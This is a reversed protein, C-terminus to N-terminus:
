PYIPGADACGGSGWPAPNCAWIDYGGPQHFNCCERVEQKDPNNPDDPPGRVGCYQYYEHVPGVPDYVKPGCPEPTLCEGKYLIKGAPCGDCFSTRPPPCTQIGAPTCSSPQEIRIDGYTTRHCLPTRQNYSRFMNEFNSADVEFKNVWSTFAPALGTGTFAIWTEKDRKSTKTLHAYAHRLEHALAADADVCLGDAYHEGKPDLSWDIIAGTPDDTNPIAESLYRGQTNPIVVCQFTTSGDLARIVARVEEPGNAKIRALADHVDQRRCETSGEVTISANGSPVQAFFACAILMALPGNWSSSSLPSKM